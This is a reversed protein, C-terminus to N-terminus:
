YGIAQWTAYGGSGNNGVTFGNVSISGYIIYTIRDTNSYTSVVVSISSLNTFARPFTVVVTGNNIDTNLVGWMTYKGSASREWYKGGASGSAINALNATGWSTTGDINTVLPGGAVSGKDAPLTFKNSDTNFSALGDVQLTNSLHTGQAVTLTQNVTADLTVVLSNVTTAGSNLTGNIQANTNVTLGHTTIINGTGVLIAGTADLTGNNNYIVQKSTGPVVSSPLNLYTTAYISSCSATTATINSIIAISSNLNSISASPASISSATLSGGINAESSVQLHNLRATVNGSLITLANSGNLTLGNNYIVQSSNGPLATSPLNGYNQAIINKVYLTGSINGNIFENYAAINSAANSNTGIAINSKNVQIIGNNWEDTEFGMQDNNGLTIKSVNYLGAEVISPATEPSTVFNFGPRINSFGVIAPNDLEISSVLGLLNNNTYLSLYYINGTNTTITEVVFGEKAGGQNPPGILIWSSGNWVYLQQNITDYWEDGEQPDLPSTVSNTIVSISKFQTGNWFNVTNSTTDYWLQGVLPNAPQTSDAFNELLHVLNNNLATGFGSYNKGILYLDGYTSVIQTDPVVTLVNGNTLTIQYSM